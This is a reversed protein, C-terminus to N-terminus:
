VAARRRQVSLQKSLRCGIGALPRAAPATTRRGAVAAVSSSCCEALAYRRCSVDGRLKWALISPWPYRPPCCQARSPSPSARPAALMPVVLPRTVDRRVSPLAAHTAEVPVVLAVARVLLGLKSSFPRNRGLRLFVEPRSPTVARSNARAAGRGVGDRRRLRARAPARRRAALWRRRAPWGVLRATRSRRAAPAANGPRQSTPRL